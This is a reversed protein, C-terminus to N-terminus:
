KGQTSASFTPRGSPMRERSFGRWLRMTTTNSNDYMNHVSSVLTPGGSPMRERSSLRVQRRWGSAGLLEVVFVVSQLMATGRSKRGLRFIGSHESVM